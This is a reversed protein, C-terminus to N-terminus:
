NPIFRWGCVFMLVSMQVRKPVVKACIGTANEFKEPESLLDCQYICRVPEPVPGSSWEAKIYADAPKWVKRMILVGSPRVGFTTSPKNALEFFLRPAIFDQYKCQNENIKM